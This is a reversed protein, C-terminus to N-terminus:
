FVFLEVNIDCMCLVSCAARYCVASWLGSCEYILSPPFWPAMFHVDIPWDNYSICYTGMIYHWLTRKTIWHQSQHKGTGHSLVILAIWVLASLNRVFIRDLRTAFMSDPSSVAHEAHHVHASRTDYLLPSQESGMRQLRADILHSHHICATWKWSGVPYKLQVGCAM